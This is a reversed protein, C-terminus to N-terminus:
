PHQINRFTLNLRETKVRLRKPLHHKWYRQTPGAMVLLSGSELSIVHRMSPDTRHRFEFDRSVGLSVSAITPNPGLEPEDDAHLGMSDSGDRYRNILCSNFSCGTLESVKEKLNMLVDTWPLPMWTRGSWKYIAAEDGYWGHLRPSLIERGFMKIRPQEWAVDAILTQCLQESESLGLFNPTYRVDADPMDLSTSDSFLAHQMSNGQILGSRKTIAHAFM